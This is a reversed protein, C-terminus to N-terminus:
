TYIIRKQDLNCVSKYLRPSCNKRENNSGNIMNHTQTQKVLAPRDSIKVIAESCWQKAVAVECLIVVVSANVGLDM